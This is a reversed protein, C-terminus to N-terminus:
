KRDQPMGQKVKSQRELEGMAALILDRCFRRDGYAKCLASAEDIAERWRSDESQTIDAYAKYLKWVNTFIEYVTRLEEEASM